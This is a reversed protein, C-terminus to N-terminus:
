LGRRIFLFNEQHLGAVYERRGEPPVACNQKVGSLVGVNLLGAQWNNPPIQYVDYGCNAIREVMDPYKDNFTPSIEIIAYDIKKAKFLKNCIRKVTPEAGEVDVKLLRVREANGPLDPFDSNIWCLYPHINASVGNLHASKLLHRINEANADFSGVRYGAAAALMSYWGIHSGFDLVVDDQNGYQLIDMVVLTETLEWSGQVDICYSIIDQGPCYSEYLPITDNGNETRFYQRWDYISYKLRGSHVVKSAHEAHGVSCSAYFDKGITPPALHQLGDFLKPKM